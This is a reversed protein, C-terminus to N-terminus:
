TPPQPRPPLFLRSADNSHQQHCGKSAACLGVAWALVGAPPAFASGSTLAVLGLLGAAAALLVVAAVGILNFV